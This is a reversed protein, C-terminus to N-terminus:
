KMSDIKTCGLRKCLHLVFKLANENGKFKNVNAHNEYKNIEILIVSKQRKGTKEIIFREIMNGAEVLLQYDDLTIVMRRESDNLSYVGNKVHKPIIVIIRNPSNNLFLPQTETDMNMEELIADSEVTNFAARKIIDFDEEYLVDSKIDSTDPVSLALLISGSSMMNARKYLAVDAHIYNNIRSIILRLHANSLNEYSSLLNIVMNEDVNNYKRTDGFIVADSPLDTTDYTLTMEKGKNSIITINEISSTSINKVPKWEDYDIKWEGNSNHITLDSDNIFLSRSAIIIHYKSKNEHFYGLVSNSFKEKLYEKILSELEQLKIELTPANSIITEAIIKIIESNENNKIYENFNFFVKGDNNKSLVFVPYNDNEVMLIKSKESSSIDKRVDEISKVYVRRELYSNLHPIVESSFDKWKRMRYVINLDSEYRGTYISNTNESLFGSVLDQITDTILISRLPRIIADDSNNYISHQSNISGMYGIFDKVYFLSESTGDPFVFNRWKKSDNCEFAHCTSYVDGRAHIGELYEATHKYIEKYTDLTEDVSSFKDDNNEEANIYVYIGSVESKSNLKTLDTIINQKDSKMYLDTYGRHDIINSTYALINYQVDNYSVNIYESFKTFDELKFNIIIHKRSHVLMSGVSFTRIKNKFEEAEEAHNAESLMTRGEVIASTVYRSLLHNYFDIVIYESDLTREPILLTTNDYKEGHGFELKLNGSHKDTESSIHTVAIDYKELIETLISSTDEDINSRRVIFTTTKAEDDIMYRKGSYALLEKFLDMSLTTVIKM